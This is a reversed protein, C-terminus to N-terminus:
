EHSLIQDWVQWSRKSDPLPIPSDKDNVSFTGRQCVACVNNVCLSLLPYHHNPLVNAIKRYGERELIGPALFNNIELSLEENGARAGFGSRVHDVSFCSRWRGQGHFPRVHVSMGDDLIRFSLHHHSHQAVDELGSVHNSMSPRILQLYLSTNIYRQSHCHNHSEVLALLLMSTSITSDEMQANLYHTQQTYLFVFTGM